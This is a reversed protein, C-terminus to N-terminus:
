MIADQSHKTYLTYFLATKGTIERKNIMHSVGCLEMFHLLVKFIKLQNGERRPYMTEIEAVKLCAINSIFKLQSVLCESLLHFVHSQSTRVLHELFSSM